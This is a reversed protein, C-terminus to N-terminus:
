EVAYPLPLIQPVPGSPNGLHIEGAAVCSSQAVLLLDLGGQSSPASVMVTGCAQEGTEPAYVPTGAPLQELAVHARYMRRKIKGLNQTRAIIEQGPYCGKKFSVGGILEYNLMQPVFEEVTAATILPNGAAIDLGRWAAIGVPQANARLVQWLAAAKGNAVVVEFRRADLGLVTGDEFVQQQMTDPQPLGLQKLLGSAQPGALGICTWSNSADNLKVKSRLMYMSLKKLIPSLLDASLQLTIGGADRWLLFDALMRGKPTCLAARRLESEGLSSVDNSLLNHLFSIADDGQAHILGLHALPAIVTENAARQADVGPNGASEMDADFGSAHLSELLDNDM